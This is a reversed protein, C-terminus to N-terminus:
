HERGAPISPFFSSYCCRGSARPTPTPHRPPGRVPGYRRGTLAQRKYVDLHTYSVPIPKDEDRARQLAEEGWPYWEVPNDAHQRLYPSTEDALHNPM